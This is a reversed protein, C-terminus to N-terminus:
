NSLKNLLDRIFKKVIPDSSSFDVYDLGITKTVYDEPRIERFIDKELDYIGNNFVILNNNADLKEIFKQSLDYFLEMSQDMIDNKFKINDKLRLMVKQMKAANQAHNDDSELSLQQETVTLKTFQRYLETSIKSRLFMLEKDKIWINKDNVYYSTKDVKSICIYKNRYM